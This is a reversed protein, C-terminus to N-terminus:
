IVKNITALLTDPNFPKVLWGTAGCRKGESKKEGSSETTLILIPTFRYPGLQRLAKVLGIGDLRPMNIDSVVLDFTQSKAIGLAEEGDNATIVQHGADSLAQSVMQRISSSDDATLIRAM